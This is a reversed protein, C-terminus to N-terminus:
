GSVVVYLTIISIETRMIPLLGVSFLYRVTERICHSVVLSLQIIQISKTECLSFPQVFIVGQQCISYLELFRHLKYRHYFIEITM